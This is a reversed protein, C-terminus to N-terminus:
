YYKKFWFLCLFYIFLYYFMTLLCKFIKFTIHSWIKNYKRSIIYEFNSIQSKVWFVLPSIKLGSIIWLFIESLHNNVNRLLYPLYFTFYFFFFFFQRLILTEKEFYIVLHHELTVYRSCIKAFYHSRFRAQLFSLFRQLSVSSLMSYKM